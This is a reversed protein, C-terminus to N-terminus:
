KLFIISLLFVCFNNLINITDNNVYKIGKFYLAKNHCHEKKETIKHCKPCKYKVQILSGLISDILSGIFGLITIFIIIKFNFINNIFFILGILFAGLLSSLTGLLTVGGSIGKDIKKFSCIDIPNKKSLVGLESAMSDALSSAMVCAYAILYTNEKTFSYIILSFTGIGINALVQIFDRRGNKQNIDKVINDRKTSFLKGAIFTAFFITFLILFSSLGGCLTIVITLIWATFTGFITFSKKYIAFLALLSSLTISILINEM